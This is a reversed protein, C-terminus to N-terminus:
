LIVILMTWMGPTYRTHRRWDTAWLPLPPAPEAGELYAVPGSTEHSGGITQQKHALSPGTMRAFNRWRNEMWSVHLIRWPKETYGIDLPMAMHHAQTSMYPSLSSSQIQNYQHSSQAATKKLNTIAAACSISNKSIIIQSSKAKETLIWCWFLIMLIMFVYYIRTQNLVLCKHIPNSLNPWCFHVRIVLESTSMEVGGWRKSLNKRFSISIRHTKVPTPCWCSSFNKETEPPKAGQGISTDRSGLSPGAV